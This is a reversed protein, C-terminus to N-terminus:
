GVVKDGQVFSQENPTEKKEEDKGQKDENKKNNNNNNWKKSDANDHKHNALIDTAKTITTPYQNNNMSYQTSLGAM